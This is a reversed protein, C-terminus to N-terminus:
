VATAALMQELWLAALTPGGRRLRDYALCLGVRGPAVRLRSVLVDDREVADLAPVLADRFRLGPAGALSARIDDESPADAPTDAGAGLEIELVVIEASFTPVVLRTAWVDPPAAFGVARLGRVIARELRLDANAGGEATSAVSPIVDFALSPGFVNGEPPKMAFVSRVHDSLEDMGERDHLAASELATVAVRKPQLAALASVVAAVPFAPGDPISVVRGQWEARRAAAEDGMPWFERVDAAPHGAPDAATDACFVGALDLVPKGLKVAALGLARMLDGDAALVLATSAELLPLELLVLDPEIHDTTTARVIEAALDREEICEILAKARATHAGAILVRQM